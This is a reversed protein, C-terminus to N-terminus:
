SDSLWDRLAQRVNKFYIVSKKKIRIKNIM